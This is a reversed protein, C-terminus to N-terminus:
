KTESFIHWVYLGMTVSGIFHNSLIHYRHGTGQILIVRQEPVQLDDISAWLCLEGQPDLGVSLITAFAPMVIAQEVKTVLSYKYITKMTLSQM